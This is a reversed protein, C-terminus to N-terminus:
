YSIRTADPFVQHEHAFASTDQASFRCSGGPGRALIQKGAGTQSHGLWTGESAGLLILLHWSLLYNWLLFLGRGLGATEPDGSALRSAEQGELWQSKLELVNQKGEHGWLVRERRGRLALPGSSCGIEGGGPLLHM